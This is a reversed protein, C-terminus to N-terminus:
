NPFRVLMCGADHIWSDHICADDFGCWVAQAHFAFDLLGSPGLASGYPRWSSTPGPPGM